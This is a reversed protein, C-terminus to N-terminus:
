KALYKMFKDYDESQLSGLNGAEDIRCVICRSYIELDAEPITALPKKHYNEERLLREKSQLARAERFKNYIIVLNDTGPVPVMTRDVEKPDFLEPSAFGLILADLQDKKVSTIVRNGYFAQTVVTILDAHSEEKRKREAELGREREIEKAEDAAKIEAETPRSWANDREYIMEEDEYRLFSAGSGRYVQMIDGPDVDGEPYMYTMDENYNELYDAGQQGSFVIYEEEGIIVIGLHGSREVVIDGNMLENKKM